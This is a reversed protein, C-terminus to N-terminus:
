GRPTTNKLAHALLSEYSMKIGGLEVTELECEIIKGADFDEHAKIFAPSFFKGNIVEHMSSPYVLIKKKDELILAIFKIDITNPETGPEAFEIM